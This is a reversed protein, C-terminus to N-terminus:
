RCCASRPPSLVLLCLKNLSAQMSWCPKTTCLGTCPPPQARVRLLQMLQPEKIDLVQQMRTAALQSLFAPQICARVEGPEAVM